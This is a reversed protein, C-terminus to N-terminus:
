YTLEGHAHVATKDKLLRIYVSELALASRDWNYREAILAQGGRAAADRLAPEKLYRLIAGAVDAVSLDCALGAGARVVDEWINVRRSLVVPVGCRMAEVVTLAFNEQYSPLVFVTSAALARWKEEDALPGTFTVKDQLGSEVTRARLSRAYNEDGPGVLVLRTNPESRAVAAFAPVLLDLGKKSHLRGLFTVLSRGRLEPYKELFREALVEHTVPPPEDAGLPVVFGAPLGAVAQEALRQEEAHTYILARAARVNPWELVRGYFWKRVRKRTLSHPDLMGHPMVVYPVGLKRCLRAAALTPYTWLTHLHVLDTRRLASGLAAALSASYAYGKLKGTKHVELVYHDAYRQAWGDDRADAMSDTTIVHADWGREALKRCVRDVVVPPGGANAHMYPIVHTIRM